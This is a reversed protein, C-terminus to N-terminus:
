RSPGPFATSAPGPAPPGADDTIVVDTLSGRRARMQRTSSSVVRAILTVEEDLPVESIPTLEGRSMYRRPFYNLLGGVTTIALHKEIVAASRKGIRRELGLDLETNM